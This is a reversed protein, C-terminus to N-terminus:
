YPYQPQAQYSQSPQSYSAPPPAAGYPSYPAPQQPAPPAYHSDPGSSYPPPVPLLAAPAPPYPTYPAGASGSDQSPYTSTQTRQAKNSYDHQPQAYYDSPAPRKSGHPAAPQEPPPGGGSSSSLRYPDYAAAGQPQTPPPGLLGPQQGHPPPPGQQQQPPPPYPHHPYSYPASSAPPPQSQPPYGSYGQPPPAGPSQPPPGYSHQQPYHPQPPYEHSAPPPPGGYYGHSPPASHAHEPPGRSHHSSHQQPPYPADHQPYHHSPGGQSGGRSHSPYPASQHSHHSPANQYGHNRSPARELNVAWASNKGDHGRQVDYSLLDGPELKGQVRSLHTHSIYLDGKDPTNLFGFGKAENFWKVPAVARAEPQDYHANNEQPRAQSSSLVRVNLATRKGTSENVELRFEVQDHEYLMRQGEIQDVHVFVDKLKDEPIIFGFAKQSNFWKITGVQFGPRPKHSNPAHSQTQNSEGKVESATEKDNRLTLLFNVTQDVALSRIGGILSSQHVFVDAGDDPLAIFGFGKDALYKKVRGTYRQGEVRGASIGTPREKPPM